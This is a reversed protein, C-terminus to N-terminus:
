VVPNVCCNWLEAFHCYLLMATRKNSNIELSCFCSAQESSRRLLVTRPRVFLGHLALFIILLQAWGDRWRELWSTCRHWLISGWLERFPSLLPCIWGFLVFYDHLASSSCTKLNLRECVWRHWTHHSLPRQGEQRCCHHHNQSTPVRVGCFPSGNRGDVSVGAPDQGRSCWPGVFIVCM